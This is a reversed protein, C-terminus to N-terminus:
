CVGERATGAIVSEVKFRLDLERLFYAFVLSHKQKVGLGAAPEKQCDRFFLEAEELPRGFCGAGWGPLNAQDLSARANLDQCLEKLTFFAPLL